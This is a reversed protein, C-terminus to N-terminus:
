RNEQSTDPIRQRATKRAATADASRPTPRGKPAMGSDRLAEDSWSVIRDQRTQKRWYRRRQRPTWHAARGYSRERDRGTM